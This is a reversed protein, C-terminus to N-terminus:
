VRLLWLFINRDVCYILIRLYIVKLASKKKKEILITKELSFDVVLIPSIIKRVNEKERVMIM